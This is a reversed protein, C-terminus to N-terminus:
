FNEARQVSRVGKVMKLDALLTNLHSTDYTYLDIYGDFEKNTTDFHITRMDVNLEASIRTTIDSVLGMRDFGSFRIRVLFSQERIKTWKIQVTEAGPESALELGIACNSKHIEISSDKKRIGLITDGPIPKCCEAVNYEMGEDLISYGSFDENEDDILEEEKKRLIGLKWYKLFRNERKKQAYINIDAANLAGMALKYFMENKSAQKYGSLLRRYISESSKIGAAMLTKEVIDSGAKIKRKREVKLIERLGTKAKATHVFELWETQPTQRDSTIIEVQDGSELIFDLGVTKHKNIKAGVAKLGVQSHIEFAFDLVTAGQPLRKLDGKPTFIYIETTYLNLKFSDLFEVADVQPDTLTERLKEMWKDLQGEDPSQGKYKWHAAYGREAIEDMRSSRIQVEVWRGEPGMVTTHLAEYGNEKPTSIWDRLRDPNPQYLDTVLSYIRWSLTKEEEQKVGYLIVRVAFIDYIDEFPINKSKMKNWISAISKPRGTIHYDIGLSEIKIMMPITFRNLYHQRKEETDRLKQSIENYIAPNEYKLCLDELETKIAYLGLRHALPAFLFNTEASIKLQKERPMSDMTRMNHLRDALKILIVRADESLTLIMKRFNEAQQTKTKLVGKIKTLGDIIQAIKAGFMMEIDELTYETDEVVDHLLACIVSKTGLGIDSAVIKAVSIPHIIYAEGSRRRAGEHAKCAFEFAKRILQVSEDSKRGKPCISLLEAYEKEFFEKEEDTYATM